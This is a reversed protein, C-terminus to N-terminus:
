YYETRYGGQGQEEPPQYKEEEPPQEEEPIQPKKKKLKEMIKGRFIFLLILIILVIIIGAALFTPFPEKLSHAAVSAIDAKETASELALKAKIYEQAAWFSDINQLASRAASLKQNADSVDSGKKSFSEIIKETESINERIKAIEASFDRLVELNVNISDNGISSFAIIKGSYKGSKLNKTNLTIKAYGDRGARIDSINEYTLLGSFNGAGELRIENIHYPGLSSFTFNKTQINGEPITADWTKPNISFWKSGEISKNITLDVPVEYSFETANIVIKEYYRGSLKSLDFIVKFKTTNGKKLDTATGTTDFIVANSLSGTAYFNIKTINATIASINFNYSVNKPYSYSLFVENPSISFDKGFILPPAPPPLYSISLSRYYGGIRNNSDVFDTELTVNNESVNADNQFIGDRLYLQGESLLTFNKSWVKYRSSTIIAPNSVSAKITITTNTKRIAYGSEIDLSSHGIIATQNSFRLGDGSEAYISFRDSDGLSIEGFEHFGTKNNYKASKVSSEVTLNAKSDKPASVYVSVKNDSTPYEPITFYSVDFAYDNLMYLVSRGFLRWGTESFSQPSGLGFFLFKDASFLAPYQGYWTSTDKKRPVCEDIIWTKAGSLSEIGASGINVSTTKTYAPIIKAVGSTIYGDLQKKLTGTECVNDDPTTNLDLQTFLKSLWFAGCGVTGTTSGGSSISNKYNNIQTSFVPINRPSVSNPQYYFINNCFTLALQKNQADNWDALRGSVNGIFIMDATSVDSDWANTLVSNENKVIVNYGITKMQSCFLKDDGQLESCDEIAVSQSTIYVITKAAAVSPLFLLLIAALLLSNRM